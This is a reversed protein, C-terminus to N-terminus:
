VGDGGGESSMDQIIRQWSVQELNIATDDNGNHEITVEALYSDTDDSLKTQIEGVAADYTEYIVVTQGIFVYFGEDTDDLEFKASSM